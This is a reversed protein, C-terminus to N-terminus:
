SNASPNCLDSAKSVTVTYCDPLRKFYPKTKKLKRLNGAAWHAFDRMM